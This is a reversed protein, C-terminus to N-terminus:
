KFFYHKLLDYKLSQHSFCKFKPKFKLKSILYFQIKRYCIGSWIPWPLIYLSMRYICFKHVPCFNVARDRKWRSCFSPFRPPYPPGRSQWYEWRPSPWGSARRSSYSRPAQCLWSWRRLGREWRHTHEKRACTYWIENYLKERASTGLPLIIEGAHRYNSILASRLKEGHDPSKSDNHAIHILQISLQIADYSFAIRKGNRAWNRRNKREAIPARVKYACFQM